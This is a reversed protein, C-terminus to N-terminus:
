RDNSDNQGSMYWQGTVYFKRASASPLFGPGEQVSGASEGGLRRRVAVATFCTVGTIVAKVDELFLWLM